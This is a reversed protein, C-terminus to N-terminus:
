SLKRIKTTMARRNRKLISIKGPGTCPDQDVALGQLVLSELHINPDVMLNATCGCNFFFLLAETLESNDHKEQKKKLSFAKNDNCVAASLIM